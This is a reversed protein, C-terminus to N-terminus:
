LLWRRGRISRPNGGRLMFCTFFCMAAQFDSFDPCGGIQIIIHIERETSLNGADFAMGFFDFGAFFVAFGNIEDGACGGLFNGWFLEEFEVPSVPGDFVFTMIDTIDGEIFITGLYSGLGSGSHHRYEPIKGDTEEPQCVIVVDGFGDSAHSGFRM